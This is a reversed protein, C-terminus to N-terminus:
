GASAASATPRARVCRRLEPGHGCSRRVFDPRAAGRDGRGADGNGAALSTADRAADGRADGAANRLRRSRDRFLALTPPGWGRRGLVGVGPAIWSKKKKKKKKKEAHRRTQARRGRGGVPGVSQDAPHQPLVPNQRNFLDAQAEGTEDGSLVSQDRQPTETNEIAEPWQARRARLRASCARVPRHRWRRQRARRRPGASRPTRLRTTDKAAPWRVPWVSPTLPKKQASWLATRSPIPHWRRRRTTRAVNRLRIPRARGARRRPTQPLPPHRVPQLM